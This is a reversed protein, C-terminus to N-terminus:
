RVAADTVAPPPERFPSPHELARLWREMTLLTWMRAGHRAAGSTHESWMRALPEPRLWAGLRADRHLVEDGYVAGLEGDFWADMPVGFGHKPRTWVAAPVLREFAKRLVPKPHRLGVKDRARVRAMLEVVATDLLPSRAELAHAMSCRDVKVHLDGPLYTVFNAHILRDIPPLGDAERLAAEFASTSGGTQAGVLARVDDEDFVSIWQRYREESARTCASLFRRLARRPDHYGSGGDGPPLARLALRALEPRVLRGLAAAAFRQYGAFVEDGGDGTLVVTVQDRAAACVLYTPVASSDAFPGDHLWILRDLLAAADARVAFETHDTGLHEAVQRAHSREDFSPQDALGASFSRVRGAAHRCMLATVVSSDIGGSLLAGVPVDAVLRRQVAVSVSSRLEDLLPEDLPRAPGAPLPSWWRHVTVDGTRPTFRLTTAPELQAIDRYITRPATVYGFTLFEAFATHDPQLSLGPVRALAKVESAFVLRDDRRTYFLPKKGSRDRALLLEERRSDWVALAFMGDLQEVFEPGWADYARLVVETDGTSRVDFGEGALQRRLERFNYIEGNFVLVAGTRDSVMPQAAADSLDLIRLRRHGFWGAGHEGGIEHAGHGEPGRHAIASAMEVAIARGRESPEATATAGMWGCIGCM